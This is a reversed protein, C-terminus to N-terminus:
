DSKKQGIQKELSLLMNAYLSHKKKDIFEDYSSPDTIYKFYNYEHFESFINKLEDEKFYIPNIEKISDKDKIDKYKLYNDSQDCSVNLTLYIDTLINENEQRWAKNLFKIQCKFLKLCAKKILPNIKKIFEENKIIINLNKNNTNNNINNNNGDENNKEESNNKDKNQSQKYEQILKEKNSNSNLINNLMIPVHCEILVIIFDDIRNVINYIIKLIILLMQSSINDYILQLNDLGESQLFQDSLNKNDQKLLALFVKLGNSDKFLFSLYTFQILNKKKLKKLATLYLLSITYIISETNFINIINYLSKEQDSLSNIIDKMQKYNLERNKELSNKNNENNNIDQEEIVFIQPNNYIYYQKLFIETYYDKTLENAEQNKSNAFTILLIKLIQSIFIMEIESKQQMILNRRYFKEICYDKHKQHYSSLFILPTEPKLYKLYNQKTLYKEKKINKEENNNNENKEESTLVIFYLTYLCLLIRIPVYKHTYQKIFKLIIEELLDSNYKIHNIMSSDNQFIYLIIFLLNINIKIFFILECKEIDFINENYTIFQSYLYSLNSTLSEFIGYEYAKSIQVKNLIEEYNQFISLADTIKNTNYLVKFLKTLAKYRPLLNYSELEENIELYFDKNIIQNLKFDKSSSIYYNIIEIIDSININAFLLINSNKSEAM